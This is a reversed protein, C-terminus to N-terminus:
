YYIKTNDLELLMIEDLEFLSNVKHKQYFNSWKIKDDIDMLSKNKIIMPQEDPEYDFSDHFRDFLDDNDFLITKNTHDIKGDCDFIREFWFPTWSAYYGWKNNYMDFLQEKSSKNRHLDFLNLYGQDNIGLKSAHQLVKYNKINDKNIDITEYVITEALDFQSYKNKGINTNHKRAFLEMIKALFMKNTEICVMKNKTFNLMEKSKNIVVNYKEFTDLVINFVKLLDYKDKLIFAAFELYKNEKIWKEILSTLLTDDLNSTNSDCDFINCINQLMFVDISYPRELLTKIISGIIRDDNLDVDKTNKLIDKSKKILYTELPGNLMAYFDYYIKFIFEILEYVYGSYYLEYTWFLADDSKNLLSVLLALKVEHKIYLYRTFVIPPENSYEDNDLKIEM